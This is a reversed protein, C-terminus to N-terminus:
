KHLRQNRLGKGGPCTADDIGNLTLHIYYSHETGNLETRDEASQKNVSHQM